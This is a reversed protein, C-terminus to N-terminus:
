EIMKDIDDLFEEPNMPTVDQTVDTWIDLCIVVHRLGEPKQPAHIPDCFLRLSVSDGGTLKEKADFPWRAIHPRITQLEEEQDSSSLADPMANYIKLHHTQTLRCWLAITTHMYFDSFPFAVPANPWNDTM